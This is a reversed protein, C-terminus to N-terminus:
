LISLLFNRIRQQSEQNLSGRFRIKLYGKPYPVGLIVTRSQVDIERELFEIVDGQKSKPLGQHDVVRQRDVAIRLSYRPRCLQAIVFVAVLVAGVQM